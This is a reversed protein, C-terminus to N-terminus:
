AIATYVAITGNDDVKTWFRDLDQVTIPADPLDIVGTVNLEGVGEITVHALIDRDRDREGPDTEITLTITEGPEYTAKDFSGRAVM